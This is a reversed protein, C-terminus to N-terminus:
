HVYIMCPFSRKSFIYPSSLREKQRTLLNKWSAYAPIDVSTQQWRPDDEEWLSFFRFALCFLTTNQHTVTYAIVFQEMPGDVKLPTIIGEIFLSQYEKRLHLLERYLHMRYYGNDLHNLWSNLRSQTLGEKTEFKIEKLKKRLFPFDVDSRNDPDVLVYKWYEEGQYTDVIGISTLKILLASLSNKKGNKDVHHLLELFSHFFVENTPDFITCVFNELEREYGDDISIWNTYVKAERAAKIMYRVLREIIVQQEKKKMKQTPWIGLAVQYLLYSMNKDRFDIKRNAQDFLNIFKQFKQPDESLVNLRMKVDFSTKTDHTNSLDMTRPHTKARENAWRFYEKRSLGFSGYSSGVENESFLTLHRYLFTDEYGKAYIVPLLQQLRLYVKRMKDSVLVKRCFGKYADGLSSRQICKEIMEKDSESIPENEKLYTRYTPFHSVFDVIYAELDEISYSPDVRNIAEVLHNLDGVLYSRIYQSKCLYLEHSLSHNFGSYKRYFSEFSEHNEKVIFLQLLMNVFDYGVSGDVPWSRELPERSQLIKEVINITIPLDRRLCELYKQPNYLGDIHDVRVGCIQPYLEIWRFLSAHYADYVESNEMKLAILEFIDFFRRYNVDYRGQDYSILRYSQKELLEKISLGKGEEKLPFLKKEVKVYWQGKIKKRRVRGEKILLEIEKSLVPLHITGDSWDVDFYEKYKSDEGKLLLDFFWHNEISAAMHNSVIDVMFYLGNRQLEDLFAKFAKDGLLDKNIHEVDTIQYPNNSGKVISFFPASYIMMVGLDKLYSIVKRADKFTFTKSLQLRYSSIIERNGM